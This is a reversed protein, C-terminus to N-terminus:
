NAKDVLDVIIPQFGKGGMNVRAGSKAALRAVPGSPYNAANVFITEAPGTADPREDFDDNAPYESDLHETFDVREQHEKSVGLQIANQAALQENWSHVYAGRAEHIHGFVHLLPKLQQVRSALAACGALINNNTLDLVNRPPGHTLKGVLAEAEEGRDYGFAWNYFNPSWPSGYVSWERGGERARFTYQEDELYVIGAAVAASGKLLKRAEAVSEPELFGKRAWNDEYFDQHLILDHNGAIVIKVKHPLSRLWDVTAQLEPLRGRNTLDGTHILVDNEDGPVDCAHTHTDSLLVFRTWDASPKALLAAPDYDLQVQTTSSSITPRQPLALTRTQKCGAM